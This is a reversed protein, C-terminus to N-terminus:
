WEPGRSRYAPELYWWWIEYTEFSRLECEDELRMVFSERKDVVVPRSDLQDSLV